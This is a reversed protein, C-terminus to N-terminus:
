TIRRRAPDGGTRIPVQPEGLEGPVLDGPEGRGARDGLEPDWGIFAFRHADSGARIPVEPERFPRAVVDCPDRCRPGDRPGRPLDPALAELSQKVLGSDLLFRILDDIVNVVRCHTPAQLGVM